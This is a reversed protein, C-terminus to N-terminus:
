LKVMKVEGVSSSVQFGIQPASASSRRRARKGGGKKAARKKEREAQMLRSGVSLKRHHKPSLTNAKPSLPALAGAKKGGGGGGGGGGLGKQLRRLKKAHPSVAQSGIAMRAFGRVAALTSAGKKPRFPHPSGAGTDRAAVRKGHNDIKNIKTLYRRELVEAALIRRKQSGDDRIRALSADAHERLQDAAGGFQLKDWHTKNLTLVTADTESLVSYLNPSGTATAEHGFFGGVDLTGLGIEHRTFVTRSESGPVQNTRRIKVQRCKRCRGQKVFSVGQCPEGQESIMDGAHHKKEKLLM